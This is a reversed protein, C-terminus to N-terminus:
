TWCINKKQCWSKIVWLKETM